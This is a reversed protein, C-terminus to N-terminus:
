AAKEASLLRELAQAEEPTAVEFSAQPEGNEGIVELKHLRFLGGLTWDCGRVARRADWKKGKRSDAPWPGANSFRGECSFGIQREAEEPSVGAVILSAMSQITKCIPCRFAIHERASVGQAKFRAHIQEITIQETM